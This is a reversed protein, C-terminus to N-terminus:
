VHARGIEGAQRAGRPTTYDATADDLRIRGATPRVAGAVIGALTSKGAGNEGVLAHIEGARFSLTVDQLVPRGGYAKTVDQVQLLTKM